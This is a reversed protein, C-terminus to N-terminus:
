TGKVKKDKEKELKELRAQTGRLLKESQQLEDNASQLDVTAAQVAQSRVQIEAVQSRTLPRVPTGKRTGAIRVKSEARELEERAEKVKEQAASVAKEAATHRQKAKEVNERAEELHDKAVAPAALVLVVLMGAWAKTM